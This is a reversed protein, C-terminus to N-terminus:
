KGRSPFREGNSLVLRKEMKIVWKGDTMKGISAVAYNDKIEDVFLELIANFVSAESLEVYETQKDM